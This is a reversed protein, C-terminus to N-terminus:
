GHALPPPPPGPPGSWPRQPQLRRTEPMTWGLRIVGDPTTTAPAQRVVLTLGGPAADAGVPAEGDDIWIPVANLLRAARLARLGDAPSVVAPTGGAAGAVQPM